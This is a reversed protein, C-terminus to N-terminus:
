RGGPGRRRFRDMHEDGYALRAAMENHRRCLVRLNAVSSPGGRGRPIIHDLEARFKSGCIERSALEWQCCGQDRKWVERRVEAPIHASDGDRRPRTASRARPRDVVAKKRSDKALVLDLGAELVDEVSAGPRPHSLALRAAELKRLFERSVTMHLRTLTATLPETTDRRAPTGVEGSRALAKPAFHNLLQVPFPADPVAHPAPEAPLEVARMTSQADQPKETVVVRLPVVGRPAIEAAISKAEQRSCHFFRPLVEARNEPTMVRALEVISTICLKGQRLTDIVEPFRQVLEAAKMRYFATGKSLGLERVLFDFLSAYGLESWCRGRDFSALELIFEVLAERENRLLGALRAVRDRTTTATLMVTLIADGDSMWNVVLSSCEGRVWEGAIPEALEEGREL